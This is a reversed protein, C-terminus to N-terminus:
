MNDLHESLIILELILKSNGSPDVLIETQVEDIERRCYWKHFAAADNDDNDTIFLELRYHEASGLYVFTLNNISVDLPGPIIRFFYSGALSYEFPKELSSRRMTMTMNVCYLGYTKTKPGIQLIPIQQGLNSSICRDKNVSWQILSTLLLDCVAETLTFLDIRSLEITDSRRFKMPNSSDNGPGRSNILYPTVCIFDVVTVDALYTWPEHEPQYFTISITWVGIKSFTCTFNDTAVPGAYNHIDLGPEEPCRDRSTARCRRTTMKPHSLIIYLTLDTVTGAMNVFIYTAAYVRIVSKHAIGVKAQAEDQILVTVTQSAQSVTNDVTLSLNYTGTGPFTVNVQRGNLKPMQLNPFIYKYQLYDGCFGSMVNASFTVLSGNMFRRQKGTECKSADCSILTLGTIDDCVVSVNQHHSVSSVNNWAVVELVYVGLSSPARHRVIFAEASNYRNPHCYERENAPNASDFTINFCVHSGTQLTLNLHVESMARVRAPLVVQLGTISMEFSSSETLTQQNLCNYINVLVLARGRVTNNVPLSCQVPTGDSLAAADTLSSVGLDVLSINVFTNTPRQDNLDLLSVTCNLIGPPHGVYPDCSATVRPIPRSVTLVIDTTNSSVTNNVVFQVTSLGAENFFTPAFKVPVLTADAPNPFAIYSVFGGDRYLYATARSGSTVTLEFEISSSVNLCTSHEQVIISGIIQLVEVTINFLRFSICNSVNLYVTHKYTLSESYEYELRFAVTETIVKAFVTIQTANEYMTWTTFADTPPLGSGMSQTLIFSVNNQRYIVPSNSTLILDPIANQVVFQEDIMYTDNSVDNFLTVICSYNGAVTFNLSINQTYGPEELISMNAYGVATYTHLGNSCSVNYNIHSGSATTVWINGKHHTEVCANHLGALHVIIKRHFLIPSLFEKHSVCNSCFVYVSRMGPQVNHIHTQIFSHNRVEFPIDYSNRDDAYTFNCLADTPAGNNQEVTFNLDTLSNNGDLLQTPFPELIVDWLAIQITQNAYTDTYSFNNRAWFQVIYENPAVYVHIFIDSENWMGPKSRNETEGDGFIMGYSVATGEIVSINFTAERGVEVCRNQPRMDAGVVPIGCMVPISHSVRSVNNWISMTVNYIMYYPFIHSINHFEGETVTFPSESMEEDHGFNSTILACNPATECIFRISFNAPVLPDSTNGPTLQLCEELVPYEIGIDHTLYLWSINTSINTSSLYYGPEPFAYNLEIIYTGNLATDYTRNCAYANDSFNVCATVFCGVLSITYQVNEKPFAYPVASFITTVNSISCRVIVLTEVDIESVLNYGTIRVLWDGPQSIEQGHRLIAFGETANDQYFVQEDPVHRLMPFGETDNDPVPDLGMWLTFNVSTGFDLTWTFNLDNGYFWPIVLQTSFNIIPYHVIITGQFQYDALYNSCVISWHYIDLSNYSHTYGRPSLLDIENSVQVDSDGYNVYCTMHSGTSAARTLTVIEDVMAIQPSVAIGLGFIPVNVGITFRVVENSFINTIQCMVKYVGKAPYTHQITGLVNYTSAFSTLTQGNGMNCFIDFRTGATASFTFQSPTNFITHGYCYDLGIITADVEATTYALGGNIRCACLPNLVISISILLNYFLICGGRGRVRGNTIGAKRDEFYTLYKTHLQSNM